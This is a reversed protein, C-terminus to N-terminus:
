GDPYMEKLKEIGYARPTGELRQMFPKILGKSHTPGGQRMVTWLPDAEFDSKEMMADQWDLIVKAGKCCLEPFSPAINKTQHPDDKINFLMERDFLHGGGHYTRIYLYDDFLASRQLVHSCQSIVLSEKGMDTGNLVTKAFSVGDLKYDYHLPTEICLLERLTPLLDVNDHFGTAHVGKQGGPWKIVLPIHCTPEDATAHEGYIALEGMNEGHDSTIIIALDDYLNNNKFWDIVQGIMDDNHRISCDYEDIFNKADAVTKLSGPHRPYKPNAEDDWMNIEHPGHPGIHLLHENFIEETIWDDCLSKDKYPNGFEAPARYPTHPDWYNIHLFWDDNKGNKELWNLVHPNLEEASEKGGMGINFCENFGANFWWASHREAFSSFSATHMGKERFQMFLNNMSFGSIFNRAEGELRMDAATGSHGVVGNHIGYQGSVLSARSPLCPANPCYYRDFVVGDGAISDINPSTDRGYGYCGLHDNRLTDIDLMLVRM